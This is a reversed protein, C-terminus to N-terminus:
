AGIKLNGNLDQGLRTELALLSASTGSIAGFLNMLYNGSFDTIWDTYLGSSPDKWAVEYGTATKEAGIPTWTGFQGTVVTSGQYTLAPGVSTGSAFLDYTSRFLM